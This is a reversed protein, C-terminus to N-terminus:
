YLVSVRHFLFDLKKNIYIRIEKHLYFEKEDLLKKLRFLFNNIDKKKAIGGRGTLELWEAPPATQDVQNKEKWIEYCIINVAQALNLSTFSNFNPIKILYNSRCIEENNLGNNERGFMIGITPKEFQTLNNNKLFQREKNDAFSNAFVKKACEEPTIIMQAMERPRDSSGMVIDLDSICEDLTKYVQAKEIIQYAGMTLAKCHESYIDCLPDVVRLKTFGFNLMVRAVSGVNQDLLPNVLIISPFDGHAHAAIDYASSKTNPSSYGRSSDFSTIPNSSTSDLSSRSAECSFGTFVQFLSWV